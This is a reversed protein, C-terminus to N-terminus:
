RLPGDERLTASAKTRRREDVTQVDVTKAFRRVLDLGYTNVWGACDAVLLPMAGFEQPLLQAVCWKESSMPSIPGM